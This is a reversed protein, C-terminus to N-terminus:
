HDPAPDGMSGAGLNDDGADAEDVRLSADSDKDDWSEPPSPKRGAMIEDIQAKDITEYELLADKMMELKPRNEELIKEATTYCGDIISRVETDIKMATENSVQPRATGASMGLFVEEDDDAYM